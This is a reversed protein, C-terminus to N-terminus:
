LRRIGDERGMARNYTKHLNNMLQEGIVIGCLFLLVVPAMVMVFGVVGGFPMDEFCWGYTFRGIVIFCITALVSAFTLM